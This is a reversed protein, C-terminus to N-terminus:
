YLAKVVSLCQALQQQSIYRHPDLMCCCLTAVAQRLEPTRQPCSELRSYLDAATLTAVLSGRPISEFLM